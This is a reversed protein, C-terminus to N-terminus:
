KTTYGIVTGQIKTAGPIAHIRELAEIAKRVGNVGNDVDHWMMIGGCRLLPLTRVTDSLAHIYDHAGDIMILNFLGMGSFDFCLSDGLHQTYPTKTEKAISGIEEDPLLEVTGPAADKQRISLSHLEMEPDMLHVQTMLSGRYTGIELMRRNQPFAAKVRQVLGNVTMYEDMSLMSAAYVTIPANNNYPTILTNPAETM